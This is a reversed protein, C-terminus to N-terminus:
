SEKAAVEAADAPALLAELKPAHEEVHPLLIEGILYLIIEPDFLPGVTPISMDVYLVDDEDSVYYKFVKYKRNIGNIFDLLEERKGASSVATAFGMRVLTYISKDLIVLLPFRKEAAELFTHCVVTDLDDKQEDMQFWTIEKEAMFENFKLAKENM